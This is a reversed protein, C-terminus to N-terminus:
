LGLLNHLVKVTQRLSLDECEGNRELFFVLADIGVKRLAQAVVKRRGCGYEIPHSGLLRAMPAPEDLEIACRKPFVNWENTPLVHFAKHLALGDPEHPRKAEVDHALLGARNFDLCAAEVFAGRRSGLVRPNSLQQVVQRLFFPRM